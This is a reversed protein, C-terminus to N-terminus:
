QGQHHSREMLHTHPGQQNMARVQTQNQCGLYDGNRTQNCFCDGSMQCAREQVTIRHRNQYENQVYEQATAETTSAAVQTAALVTALTGIVLLTLIIGKTKVNVNNVEKMNILFSLPQFLM